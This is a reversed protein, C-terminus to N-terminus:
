RGNVAFFVDEPMVQRGFPIIRRINKESVRFRAEHSIVKTPRVAKAPMKPASTTKAGPHAPLTMGVM